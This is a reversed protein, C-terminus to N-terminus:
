AGNQRWLSSLHLAALTLAVAATQIAAPIPGSQIWACTAVVTLGTIIFLYLNKKTLDGM